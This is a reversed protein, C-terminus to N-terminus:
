TKQLGISLRIGMGMCPISAMKALIVICTNLAIHISATTISQRMSIITEVLSDPAYFYNVHKYETGGGEDGTQLTNIRISDLRWAYRDYLDEQAYACTGKLLLFAVFLLCFCNKKEMIQM